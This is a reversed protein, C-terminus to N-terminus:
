SYTELRENHHSSDEPIRRQATQCFHVPNVRHLTGFFPAIRFLVPFVSSRLCVSSFDEVDFWCKQQKKGSYWWTGRSCLSVTEEFRTVIHGIWEQM